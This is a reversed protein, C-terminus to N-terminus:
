KRDVHYLLSFDNKSPSMTENVVARFRLWAPSYDYIYKIKEIESQTLHEPIKGPFMGSYDRIKGDLFLARYFIYIIHEFSGWKLKLWFGEEDTSKSFMFNFFSKLDVSSYIPVDFFWPFLKFSSSMEKLKQVEEEGFFSACDEMISTFAVGGGGGSFYEGTLYNEVLKPFLINPDSVFICDCDIVAIYEYKNMFFYLSIFKKLNVICKDDNRRYRELIKGNGYKAEIYGQANFYKIFPTMRECFFDLSKRIIEREGDNSVVLIIDFNLPENERLRERTTNLLSVLWNIKAVHVPILLANM